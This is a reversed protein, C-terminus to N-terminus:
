VLGVDSARNRDIETADIDVRVVKAGLARLVSAPQEKVVTLLEDRTLRQDPDFRDSAMYNLVSRRLQRAAPRAELDSALDISCVVLRGRGIRAEFLNALRQNTTFNDIVQVIPRLDAPLGDVVMTRSRQLLDYWQWDAHAETPFQALAPHEPDCLIGMTGRAASSFWLPSWFVPTFSGPRSRVLYPGRPLLLVREGADLAALAETVSPTVLVDPPEGAAENEPYVWINWDNAIGLGSLRVEITARVPARVGKLAVEIAGLDSLQGTPIDRAPLAGSHIRRGDEAVLSWQPVVGRLRRPGFHSIQVRASLTDATTYTRQKMRLLPVTPGCFRSFESASIFGKSDWFADLMGVLATGQGPFDHLDLLQFGGLGPTRLLVEIEEKYLQASLRGTVWTFDDAQSLLHHARLSDRVREFNRPRLVGTYKRIERINPFVSWQGVEHSILPVPSQRVAEAFDADTTPGHLGRVAAVNYQDNPGFSWATSSTYLHRPDHERGLLVLTQLFSVDGTLENGMCLMGFSPHNGYADLIRMVEQRIFEDRPPDQGVDFTWQPAEIHLLFGMRDAAEFAAEPPCWSHFRMHNLGYSRAIRFIRLWSEVDTPPYGTLPFVCCELTGRLFAPRGNLVLRGGRVELDRMGFRVRREDSAGDPLRLTAVLEYRSPSFEDWRRMAAGLPLTAEVMGGPAAPVRAAAVMTGSALDRVALQLDGSAEGVPEIHAAARVCHGHVDPYAQLRAVWASPTARLEIRGVVGNWNTQTQESTSHAAYGMNLKLTNDVCLTLRHRGPTLGTGLDHEHPVCLSNETGREQDDLWVRTEWHCRELFLTVRLGAWSEPIDIERQYWAPGVYEYVRSLGNLDPPRTNPTGKHNEDTSGPLIVWDALDQEFWREAIGVGGPDLEFRWRGSLSITDRQGAAASSGLSALIAALVAPWGPYRRSM